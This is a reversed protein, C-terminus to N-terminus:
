LDFRLYNEFGKAIEFVIVIKAVNIRNAISCVCTLSFMLALIFALYLNVIYNSLDFGKVVCHRHASFSIVSFSMYSSCGSKSEQEQLIPLNLLVYDLVSTPTWAQIAHAKVRKLNCTNASVEPVYVFYTTWTKRKTYIWLCFLM